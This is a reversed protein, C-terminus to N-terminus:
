VFFVDVRTFSNPPAHSQMSYVTPGARLCVPLIFSVFSDAM